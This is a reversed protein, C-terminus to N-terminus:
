LWDTHVFPGEPDSDRQYTHSGFADRQAQTLNQPLRAARYSDYYALSASMAPVPIGHSQALGVIRRWASQGSQIQEYITEDLLLNDLKPNREYAKMITDLFRARIICGGRWLLSINGNNLKWGFEEAAADLTEAPIGEDYMMM